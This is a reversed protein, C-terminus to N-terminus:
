FPELKTTGGGPAEASVESARPMYDAVQRYTM